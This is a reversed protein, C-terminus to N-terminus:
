QSLTPVISIVLEVFLIVLVQLFDEEGNLVIFLLKKKMVIRVKVQESVVQSPWTGAEWATGFTGGM